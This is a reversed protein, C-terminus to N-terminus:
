NAYKYGGGHMKKIIESLATKNTIILVKDKDLIETGGKPYIVNDERLVSVIVCEEPLVLNKIMKNCWHSSKNIIIEAILMSGREITSVIRYENKDLEFEILNAIVETSCVINDIGL